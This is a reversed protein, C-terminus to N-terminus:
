RRRRLRPVHPASDRYEETEASMRRERIPPTMKFMAMSRGQSRIAAAATFARELARPDATDMVRRWQHEHELGPLTFPVEEDHANLLVLLTDGVIPEGRENVDEIVDGALMMGLCRVFDANWAEDTM